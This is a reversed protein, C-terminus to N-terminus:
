LGGNLMDACSHGPNRSHITLADACEDGGGPMSLAATVTDEHRLDATRRRCPRFRVACRPEVRKLRNPDFWCWQPFGRFLAARRDEVDAAAAGEM